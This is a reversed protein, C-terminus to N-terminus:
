VNFILGNESDAGEEQDDGQEICPHNLLWQQYAPTHWRSGAILHNLYQREPLLGEALMAKNAVYIWANVPGVDSNVVFVERSYRVPNGEFPDMIAIDEPRELRYLVGEVSSNRAYAINAYAVNQKGSARKDFRLCYGQLCGAIAKNFAVGRARMRGPNMNSGYAFYWETMPYNVTIYIHLFPVFELM